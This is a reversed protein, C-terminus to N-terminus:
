RQPAAELRWGLDVWMPSWKALDLPVNADGERFLGRLAGGAFFAMYKQEPQPPYGEYSPTARFPVCWGHRYGFGHPQGDPKPEWHWKAVRGPAPAEFRYEARELPYKAGLEREFADRVADQHGAPPPPGPDKREGGCASLLLAFGWIRARKM